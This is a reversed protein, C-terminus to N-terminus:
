VNEIQTSAPAAWSAIKAYGRTILQELSDACAEYASLPKGYPDAIDFELGDLESILHTKGRAMPFEACLADRHSRTMVLVVNARNLIDADVSRSLHTALPIGREAMVLQALSSAPQGDTCWTGVSEIRWKDLEGGAAAHARFLAAAM